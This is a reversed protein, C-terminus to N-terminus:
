AESGPRPLLLIRHAIANLHMQTTGAEISNARSRLYAYRWFDRQPGLLAASAPTPGAPASALLGTALTTMGQQLDEWMLKMMSGEPGPSGSEEYAALGLQGLARMARTRAAFVGVQETVTTGALGLRLVLECLQDLLVACGAQLAFGMTAREHALTTMAVTWGSGPQGVVAAAPVAVDDFVVENFGSQGTAQRIPSVHMGPSSMPVAFMTMAPRGPRGNADPTRALLICHSAIEGYSTWVKRGNIVYGDQAPRASTKIGGLDSGAEPESFGQCWIQDGSLIGPLYEACQQDSGHAIITPGAMYLGISNIPKPARARAAEEHFIAQRGMDLGRGGFRAPWAIGAWGAAALETQWRRRVDYDECREDHEPDSPDGCVRAVAPGLWSRAEARFEAHEATDGATLPESV